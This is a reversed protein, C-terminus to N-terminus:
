FAIDSILLTSPVSSLTKVPLSYLYVSKNSLSLSLSVSLSFRHGVGWKTKGSMRLLPPGTVQKQHCESDDRAGHCLQRGIMKCLEMM